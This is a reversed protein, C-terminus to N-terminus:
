LRYVAEGKPTLHSRRSGRARATPRPAPVPELRYRDKLEGFTAGSGRAGVQHDRARRAGGNWPLRVDVGSLEPGVMGGTPPQSSRSRSSRVSTCGETRTRQIHRAAPVTVTAAVANTRNATRPGSGHRGRAQEFKPQDNRTYLRAGASVPRWATRRNAPSAPAAARNATAAVRLWRPRSTVTSTAAVIGSPM